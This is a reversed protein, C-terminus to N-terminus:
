FDRGRHAPVVVAGAADAIPEDGDRALAYHGVVDGGATVAVISLYAGSDNLEILRAPSYM